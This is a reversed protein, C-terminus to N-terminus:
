SRGGRPGGYCRGAAPRAQVEVLQPVMRSGRRRQLLADEPGHQIFDDEFDGVIRGAIKKPQVPAPANVGSQREGPIAGALVATRHAPLGDLENTFQRADTVVLADRGGEVAESVAGTMSQGPSRRSDSANAVVMPDWRTVRVWIPQGQLLDGLDKLHAVGDHASEDLVPHQGGSLDHGVGRPHDLPFVEGKWGDLGGGLGNSVAVFARSSRGAM